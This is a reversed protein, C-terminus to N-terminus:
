GQVHECAEGVSRPRLSGICCSKERAVYAASDVKSTDDNGNVPRPDVEPESFSPLLWSLWGTKMNMISQRWAVFRRQFALPAHQFEALKEPSITIRSGRVVCVKLDMKSLGQWAEYAGPTQRLVDENPQPVSDLPQKAVKTNQGRTDQVYDHLVRTRAMWQNAVENAVRAQPFVSAGQGLRKYGLDVFVHRLIGYKSYAEDMLSLSAM